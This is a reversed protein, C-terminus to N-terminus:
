QEEEPEAWDALAQAVVESVLQAPYGKRALMSTLRRWAVQRPCNTLSRARKVALQSAMQRQQDTDIRAVAAQVIHSDVGKRALESAIAAPALGREAVRTRVLLEAYAADDILGVETLRDLVAMATAEDFGKRALTAALQGRTRACVTLSKLVVERAAEYRAAPPLDAPSRRVRRGQRGSRAEM